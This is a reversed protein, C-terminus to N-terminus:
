CTAQGIQGKFYKQLEDDTIGLKMITEWDNNGYTKTENSNFNSIVVTQKMNLEWGDVALITRYGALGALTV